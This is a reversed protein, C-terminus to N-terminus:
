RSMAAGLLLALFAAGGIVLPTGLDVKSEGAGTGGEAKGITRAALVVQQWYSGSEESLSQRAADATTGMCTWFGDGAVLYRTPYRVAYFMTRASGTSFPVARIAEPTMAWEQQIEIMSALRDYLAAHAAADWTGFSLGLARRLCNIFVYGGATTDVAGFRTLARQQCSGCAM